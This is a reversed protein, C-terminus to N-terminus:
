FAVTFGFSRDGYIYDKLIEYNERTLKYGGWVGTLDHVYDKQLEGAISMKEACYIINLTDMVTEWDSDTLEGANHIMGQDVLMAVMTVIACKRMKPGISGKINDFARSRLVQWFMKNETAHDVYYVIRCSCGEMIDMIIEKLDRCRIEYDDPETHLRDLGIVPYETTDFM